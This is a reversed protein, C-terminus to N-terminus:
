ETKIDEDIGNLAGVMAHWSLTACKVRTPFKRVGSLTKLEALDLGTDVRNEDTVLALFKRFLEMADDISKGKIMETMMSASALSIACGRADFRAESIKDGDIKLFITVRDGCLPNNGQATLDAGEAPGFNRPNRSHDLIVEQYLDALGDNM